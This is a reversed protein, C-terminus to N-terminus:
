GLPSRPPPWGRGKGRSVWPGQRRRAQLFPPTHSGKDREWVRTAQLVWALGSGEEQTQPGPSLLSVTASAAPSTPALLPWPTLGWHASPTHVSGGHSEWGGWSPRFPCSSRIGPPRHGSRLFQEWFHACAGSLVIHWGPGQAVLGKHCLGLFGCPFPFSFSESLSVVASKQAVGQFDPAQTGPGASSPPDRPNGLSRQPVMLVGVQSRAVRSEMESDMGTERTFPSIFSVQRCLLSCATPEASPSRGRLTVM